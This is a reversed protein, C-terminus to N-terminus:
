HHCDGVAVTPHSSSDVADVRDVAESVSQAVLGCIAAPEVARPARDGFALVLATGHNHCTRPM